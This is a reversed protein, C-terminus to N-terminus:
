ERKKDKGREDIVKYTSYKTQDFSLISKDTLKTLNTYSVSLVTLFAKKMRMGKPYFTQRDVELEIAVGSMKFTILYQSKETKMKLDTIEAEKSKEADHLMSPIGFPLLMLAYEKGGDEITLTKKKTDVSYAVEETMWELENGDAIYLHAGDSAFDTTGGIGMSKMTLKGKIGEKVSISNEAKELVQRVSLQANASLSLTLMELKTVIKKM